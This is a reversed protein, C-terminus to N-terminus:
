LPLACGGFAVVFRRLGPRALPSHVCLLHRRSGLLSRRRRVGSSGGGGDSAEDATAAAAAARAAAAVADDSSAWAATSNTSNAGGGTSNRDPTYEVGNLTYSTPLPVGGSNDRQFRRLARSRLSTSRRPM